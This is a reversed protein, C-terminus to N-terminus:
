PSFSSVLNPVIEDIKVRNCRNSSGSGNRPNTIITNASASAGSSILVAPGEPFRRASISMQRVQFFVLLDAV